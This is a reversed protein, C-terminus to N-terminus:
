GSTGDGAYDENNLSYCSCTLSHRTDTGRTLLGGSFAWAVGRVPTAIATMMVPTSIVATSVVITTSAKGSIWRPSCTVREATTQTMMLKRSTMVSSAVWTPRSPSMNPRTRIYSIPEPISRVNAFMPM